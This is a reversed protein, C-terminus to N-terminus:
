AGKRRRKREAELFAHMSDYDIGYLAALEGVTRDGGFTRWRDACEARLESSLVRISAGGEPRTKPRGRRDAGERRDAGSARGRHSIMNKVSLLDVEYEDALERATQGGNWRELIDARQADSLTTISPLRDPDPEPEDPKDAAWVKVALKAATGAPWGHEKDIRSPPLAREYMEIYVAAAQPDALKEYEMIQGSM